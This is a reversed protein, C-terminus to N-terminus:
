YNKKQKEVNKTSSHKKMSISNMEEDEDVCKALNNSLVFVPAAPMGQAMIASFLMEGVEDGIKNDCSEDNTNPSM